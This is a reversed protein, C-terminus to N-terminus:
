AIADRGLDDALYERMKRKARNLANDVSKPTTGLQSALQVYSGGCCYGKLATYEMPSLAARALDWLGKALEANIVEQIPDHANTDAISEAISRDNGEDSSGATSADLPIRSGRPIKKGRMAGRVVSALRRTVCLEAFTYMKSKGPDWNEVASLFGLEAEQLLDDLEVANYSAAFNLAWM